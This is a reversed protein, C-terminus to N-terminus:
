APRSRPRRPASPEEILNRHRNLALTLIKPAGDVLVAVHQIDEHLAALVLASGLAEETLQQFTLPAYGILQGRVFTSALGCRFALDHWGNDVTLVLVCVISGFHRM